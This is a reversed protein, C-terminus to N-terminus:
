NMEARPDDAPLAFSYIIWKGGPARLLRIWEEKDVPTPGVSPGAYRVRVRVLRTEVFASSASIATPSSAIAARSANRYASARLSLLRARRRLSDADADSARSWAPDASRQELMAARALSDIAGARVTRVSDIALVRGGTISTASAVCTSLEHIRKLDRKTLAALYDQTVKRVERVEPAERACGAVLTLAFAAASFAAVLATRFLRPAPAREIM